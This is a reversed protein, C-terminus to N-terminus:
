KVKVTYPVILYIHVTNWPTIENESINKPPLQGYRPARKKQTQCERCRKAFQSAQNIIGTSSVYDRGHLLATTSASDNM